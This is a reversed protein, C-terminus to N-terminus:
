GFFHRKFENRPNRRQETIGEIKESGYAASLTGLSDYSRRNIAPKEPSPSKVEFLLDTEDLNGDLNDSHDSYVDSFARNNDSSDGLVSNVELPRSLGTNADHKLVDCDSRFAKRSVGWGSSESSKM